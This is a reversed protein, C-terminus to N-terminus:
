RQALKSFLRDPCFPVWHQDTIFMLVLFIQRSAEDVNSKPQREGAFEFIRVDHRFLADSFDSIFEVIGMKEAVM